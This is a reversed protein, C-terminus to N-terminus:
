DDDNVIVDVNVSTADDDPTGKVRVSSELVSTLEDTPPELISVINVGWGVGAGDFRGVVVGDHRGVVAGDSVGVLFIVLDVVIGVLFAFLGVLCGFVCVGDSM